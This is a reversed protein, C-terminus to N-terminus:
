VGSNMQDVFAQGVCPSPWSKSSGQIEQQCLQLKVNKIRSQIEHALEKMHLYGSIQDRDIHLHSNHLYVELHCPKESARFGHFDIKLKPAAQLEKKPAEQAADATTEKKEEIPNASNTPPVSKLISNRVKFVCTDNVTYKMMSGQYVM